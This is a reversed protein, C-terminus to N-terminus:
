RADLFSTELGLLLAEVKDTSLGPGGTREHANTPYISQWNSNIM